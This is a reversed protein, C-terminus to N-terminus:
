LPHISGEYYDCHRRFGSETLLDALAHYGAVQNVVIGACGLAPAQEIAARVAQDPHDPAPLFLIPGPPAYIPPAPVTIAEGGPLLVRRGAEGGGSGPLERLWWSEVVRLGVDYAFQARPLEYVPCVFRVPSDECDNALAKWLVLGDGYAWDEDPVHADDVLWGDDRPVAVLVSDETRYARAGGETILHELFARHLAATDPAPRWFVPARAVLQERRRALVSM